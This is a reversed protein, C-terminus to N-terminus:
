GKITVKVVVNLGEFLDVLEPSYEFMLGNTELIFKGDIYAIVDAVHKALEKGLIPEACSIRIAVERLGQM